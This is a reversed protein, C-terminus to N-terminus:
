RSSFVKTQCGRLLRCHSGISVPITPVRYALAARLYRGGRCCVPRYVRSSGARQRCERRQKQRISWDDYVAPPFCFPHRTTLNVVMAAFDPTPDLFYVGANTAKVRDVLARSVFGHYISVYLRSNSWTSINRLMAECDLFATGPTRRPLRPQNLARSTWFHKVGSSIAGITWDCITAVSSM